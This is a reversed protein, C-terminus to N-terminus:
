AEARALRVAKEWVEDVGIREMCDRPRGEYEFGLNLYGGYPLPVSVSDVKAGVPGWRHEATPGNLGLTPAGVAAALHMIGTNVSVVCAARRLISAVESLGDKGARVEVGDDACLRALAESRERDAPGGTVLVRKGESRFRCMLEVWREQPWERVESLTGGPWPHCVVYTGDVPADGEVSITPVRKSEVGLPALLAQFNELEHRDSRHEVVADYGYHRHQGATSFGITYAASSLWSYVANIRPWQGFDLLVDVPHRRMLKACRFPSTVPLEVREDADILAAVGKNTPGVFLTVRVGPYAKRLDPILGALLITDGICAEKFLGISRIRSPLTRKRRLMSQMCVMPIGAYRDLLKMTGSAREM